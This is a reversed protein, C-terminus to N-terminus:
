RCEKGKRWQTRFLKHHGLYMLVWKEFAWAKMRMASQSCSAEFLYVSISVTSAKIVHIKPLLVKEAQRHNPSKDVPYASVMAYM